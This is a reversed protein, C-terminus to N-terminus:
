DTDSAASAPLKINLPGGPGLFRSKLLDTLVKLDDYLAKMQGESALHFPPLATATEEIRDLALSMDDRLDVANAQTLWDDFGIGEGEACGQFLSRFARLNALVAERDLHAFPTEPNPGSSTAGAFPAVKGDRVELYVYLLSWAVVSLAEDVGGYGKADVLTKGFDEGSKSWVRVLEQSRRYVDDVVAKAYDLRAKLREDDPKENWAATTPSASSCGAESMDTFLLAELAFLGRAGPPVRLMGDGDYSRSVLQKTVECLNPAPWSHIYAGIGRGHYKDTAVGVLPGFEFPALGSWALMASRWAAQAQQRNEESPQKTYATVRSGLAEVTSALECTLHSACSAAAALLAPRSFEGTTNPPEGCADAGSGAGGVVPYVVDGGVAVASGSGSGTGGSGRGAMPEGTGSCGSAGWASGALVCLFFTLKRYRSSGLVPTM